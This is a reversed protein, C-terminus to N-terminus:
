IRKIDHTSTADRAEQFQACDCVDGAGTAHGPVYNGCTPCYVQAALKERPGLAAKLALYDEARVFRGVPNDWADPLASCDSLGGCHNSSEIFIPPLSDSM